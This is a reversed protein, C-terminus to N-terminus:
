VPILLEVELSKIIAMVPVPMAAVVQLISTPTVNQAFMQRAQANQATQSWVPRLKMAIKQEIDMDWNSTHASV